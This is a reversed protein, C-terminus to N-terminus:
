AKERNNPSVGRPHLVQDVINELQASDFRSVYRYFRFLNLQMRDYVIDKCCQRRARRRSLYDQIVPDLSVRHNVGVRAAQLLHNGIEDIIGDLEISFTTAHYDPM